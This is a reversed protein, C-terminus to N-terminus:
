EIEAGEIGDTAPDGEVGATADKEDDDGEGAESGDPEAPPPPAPAAPPPPAAKKRWLGPREPDPELWAPRAPHDKPQPKAPIQQDM